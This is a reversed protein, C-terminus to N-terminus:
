RPEGLGSRIEKAKEEAQKMDARLKKEEYIEALHEYSIAACFAARDSNRKM